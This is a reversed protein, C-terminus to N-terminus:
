LDFAPQHLVVHHEVPLRDREHQHRVEDRGALDPADAARHGTERAHQAAEAVGVRLVGGQALLKRQAVELVVQDPDVGAVGVRHADAAQVREQLAVLDPEELEVRIRRRADAVGVHEVLPQALRDVQRAHLALEVGGVRRHQGLEDRGQEVGVAVRARGLGLQRLGRPERQHVHRVGGRDRLEPDDAGRRPRGAEVGAVDPELLQAVVARQQAGLAVWHVQDVPAHQDLVHSARAAGVQDGGRAVAARDDEVREARPHGVVLLQEGQELVRAERM